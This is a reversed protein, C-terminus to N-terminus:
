KCSGLLEQSERGSGSIFSINRQAAKEERHLPDSQIACDICGFSTPKSITVHPYRCSWKRGGLSGGESM